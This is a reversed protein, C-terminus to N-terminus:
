ATASAWGDGACRMAWVWALAAAVTLGTLMAAAGVADLAVGAALPVLMRSAAFLSAQLGYDFAQWRPRAFQMMLGFVCASSAGMAAAVCAVAAVLGPAPAGAAIVAALLALAAVNGGAYLPLARRTGLRHTLLPSAAGALAAVVGGGMGALLAAQAPAFGHDLMLPKLYFWAAGIFPFYSVLVLTWRWAGPQAGYGRVMAALGAKPAPLLLPSPADGPEHRVVWALLLAGLALAGALCLFPAHWGWKAQMLLMMGGGVIAGLSLAAARVGGARMRESAPLLRIALASVPIDAWTAALAAAFALGFLWLREALLQQWGLALLVAAYALCLALAWARYRPRGNASRAEVPAALAFKILAPLGALQFLGIATGSWGHQRMVLPLGLWLYVSPATLALHLWGFLAQLLWVPRPAAAKM